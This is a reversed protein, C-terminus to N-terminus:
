DKMNNIAFEICRTILVNMSINKNQAIQALEEKTKHTIRLTVREMENDAYKEPNFKDM